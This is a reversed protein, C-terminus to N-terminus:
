QSDLQSIVTNESKHCKLTTNKVACDPISSPLEWTSSALSWKINSSLLNVAKSLKWLIFIYYYIFLSLIFNWHIQLICGGVLMTIKKTQQWMSQDKNQSKLNDIVFFPLISAFFGCIELWTGMLTTRMAFYYEMQFGIIQHNM